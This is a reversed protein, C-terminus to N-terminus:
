LLSFLWIRINRNKLYEKAFKLSWWSLFAVYLHIPNKWIEVYKNMKIRLTNICGATAGWLQIFTGLSKSGKHVNTM